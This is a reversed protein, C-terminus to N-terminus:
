GAAMKDQPLCCCLPTRVGPLRSVNQRQGQRRGGWLIRSTPLSAAAAARGARRVRAALAMRPTPIQPVPAPWLSASLRQGVPLPDTCIKQGRKPLWVGMMEDGKIGKCGWGRTPPWKLRAALHLRSPGAPKCLGAQLGAQRGRASGQLCAEVEGLMGSLPLPCPLPPLPPFALKEWGVRGGETCPSHPLPPRPRRLSCHPGSLAALGPNSAFVPCCCCCCCSVAERLLLLLLKGQWHPEGFASRGRRHPGSARWLWVDPWHICFPPLSPPHCVQM